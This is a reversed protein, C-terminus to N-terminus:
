QLIKRTAEVDKKMQEILAEESPFAIVDRLKQVLAVEVDNLMGVPLDADSTDLLFVELSKEADNFTPIPGYHLAGPYKKGAITVWAAYIGDDASFDTPIQLNITPFGLFKGRGKGRIQSTKM